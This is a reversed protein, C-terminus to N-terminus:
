KKGAVQFSGYFGIVQNPDKSFRVTEDYKNQWEKETTGHELDTQKFANLAELLKIKQKEKWLIPQILGCNIIEFGAKRCEYFLKMGIDGDRSQGDVEEEPKVLDPETAFEPSTRAM